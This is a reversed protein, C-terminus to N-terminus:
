LLGQAAMSGALVLLGVAGPGSQKGKLHSRLDIGACMLLAPVAIMTDVKGTLWGAGLVVIVVLNVATSAWIEDSSKSM